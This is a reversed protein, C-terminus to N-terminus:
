TRASADCMFAAECLMVVRGAFRRGTVSIDPQSALSGPNQLDVHEIVNNDTLGVEKFSFSGPRGEFSVYDRKNFL